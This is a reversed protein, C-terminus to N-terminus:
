RPYTIVQEGTRTSTWTISLDTHMVPLWLGMHKRQHDPRCLPILNFEM